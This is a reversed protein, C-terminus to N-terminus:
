LTDTPLACEFDIFDFENDAFEGTYVEKPVGTDGLTSRAGGPLHGRQWDGGYIDRTTGNERCLTLTGKGHLEDDQFKGSCIREPNGHKNFCTKTGKGHLKDGQFEGSCIGM